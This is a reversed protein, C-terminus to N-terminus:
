PVVVTIPDGNRVIGGAVVRALMGRRGALEKLLGPRIENMRSCPSCSQTIELIAGAGLRLRTNPPLAMLAIGTTTFNEKVEGATLRLADLTEREVLLVQRSSGAIAHTDGRIGWEAVLEASDVPAMPKRHGPCLQISLISGHTASEM